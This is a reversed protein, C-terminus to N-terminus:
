VGLMKGIARVWSKMRVSPRSREKRLYYIVAKAGGGDHQLEGQMMEWHYAQRMYLAIDNMAKNQAELPEIRQQLGAARMMQTALKNQLEKVDTTLQTLPETCHRCMGGAYTIPPREQGRQRLETLEEDNLNYQLHGVPCLFVDDPNYAWDARRREGKALKIMEIAARDRAESETIAENDTTGYPNILDNNSPLEIPQTM